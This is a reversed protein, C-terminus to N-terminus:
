AGVGCRCTPFVNSKERKICPPGGTPASRAPPASPQPGVRGVRSSRSSSYRSRSHSLITTWSGYTPRSHSLITTWSGNARRSHSLITAWSGYTPRSHSLITAWSGQPRAATRFSRPGRDMPGPPQAFPDHDVIWQGPPQAFPDHGVIWQGPPQAFPDYGVIWQGPPQASLIATWSGNAPRSRSLITAWSGNARRSRSLITAWSGNTSGGVGIGTAFTHDPRPPPIRPYEVVKVAILVWEYRPPRRSAERRRAPERETVVAIRRLRGHCKPCELVDVSFSRRLLTAWDVRSSVAYLLGGLLRDWHRVSIINPALRMVDEALPAARVAAVMAADHASMAPGRHTNSAEPPSPARPAPGGRADGAKSAPM